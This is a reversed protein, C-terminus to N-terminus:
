FAAQKNQVSKQCSRPEPQQRRISRAGWLSRQARSEHQSARGEGPQRPLPPSHRPLPSSNLCLRQLPGEVVQSPHSARGPGLTPPSPAAM